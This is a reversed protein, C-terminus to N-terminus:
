RILQLVSQDQQSALSLSNSALSQRTQLALLNAAESNMDALTLNGAGDKLTGIMSNTFDQRGQVISLNSGFSSAQSRVDNLATKLKTLEADINTDSDLDKAEITTSVGLNASNVTQGNKTQIDISSTGTENFTIALNDGRLLNIGNFSADDALKDLQDRLENFQTALGARVTNGAVESTATGSGSISGGSAGTIDLKQTSQNEIRLKGNDNSARIKGTLDTNANIDSVLQDVSKAAFTDTIATVTGTATVGNTSSTSTTAGRGLATGLATDSTEVTFDSGDTRGFDVGGAVGAASFGEASAAAALAAKQGTAAGTFTYSFTNGGESTVTVTKGSLASMDPDAASFDTGGAGALTAATASGAAGAALGAAQAAAGGVTVTEGKSSELQLQGDVVTASLGGAGGTAAALATNIKEAASTATDTATLNVTLANGSDLSTAQLTLAGGNGLTNGGAVFGNNGTKTSTSLSTSQASDFAGGSFSISKASTTGIATADVTLSSTQFSKDQRAQRLTSQMSELTKTMASLGNDAAKLTQIGNAMGDLLSNLDGARNNLGKATFWNSPNDLASNVKNGTSLRNQTEAMMSATSTLSNLNARVAKSLSIDAM